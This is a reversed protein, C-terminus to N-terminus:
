PSLRVKVVAEADPICYLSRACQFVCRVDGGRGNRGLLQVTARGFVLDVAAAGDRGALADLLVSSGM